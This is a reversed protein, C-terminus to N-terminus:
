NPPEQSVGPLLLPALIPHYRLFVPSPPSLCEPPLIILLWRDTLFCLVKLPKLRPSPIFPPTRLLFSFSIQPQTSSPAEWCSSSSTSVPSEPPATWLLCSNLVSAWDPWVGTITFVPHTSPISHVLPDPTEMCPFLFYSTFFTLGLLLFLGLLTSGVPALLHKKISSASFLKPQEQFDCLALSQSFPWSNPKDTVKLLVM